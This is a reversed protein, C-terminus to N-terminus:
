TSASNSAVFAKKIPPDFVLHVTPSVHSPQFPSPRVSTCSCFSFNNELPPDVFQRFVILLLFLKSKSIHGSAISM